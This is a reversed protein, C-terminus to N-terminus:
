EIELYCFPHPPGSAPAQSNNFLRASFIELERHRGMTLALSEACAPIFIL